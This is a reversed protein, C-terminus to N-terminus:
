LDVVQSNIQRFRKVQRIKIQTIFALSWVIYVNEISLGLKRILTFVLGIFLIIM